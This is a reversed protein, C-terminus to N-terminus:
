GVMAAAFANIVKERAEARTKGTTTGAAALLTEGEALTRRSQPKHVTSFHAIIKEPTEEYEISVDTTLPDGDIKLGAPLIETNESPTASPTNM